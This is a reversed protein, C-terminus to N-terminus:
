FLDYRVGVSFGSQCEKFKIVTNSNYYHNIYATASLRLQQSVYYYVLFNFVAFSNFDKTWETTSGNVAEDDIIKFYNRQLTESISAVLYTRTNPYYGIAGRGYLNLNSSNSKVPTPEETLNTYSTTNQIATYGWLSAAGSKQWTQNIPKECNYDLRLSSGLWNRNYRNWNTTEFDLDGFEGKTNNIGYQPNLSVIFEQGSLREFKDGYKWMDYLNTFYAAERNALLNNDVFYSDIVTIENMLHLRRDFYRKNKVTTILQAFNFIEADTLRRNLVNNTSLADLIYIAQRADEVREIRGIGVAASLNLNVNLLNDKSKTENINNRFVDKDSNFNLSGGFQYFQLLSTFPLIQNYIRSTYYSNIDTGSESTNNDINSFLRFEKNTASNGNLGLNVYIDTVRQRTSYISRYTASIDGEIESNRVSDTTADTSTRLSKEFDGMTKFKFYLKDRMYDPTYYTSIDYDDYEGAISKLPDFVFTFCFIFVSIVLNKM